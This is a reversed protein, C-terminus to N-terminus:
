KLLGPTPGTTIEGLTDTNMGIANLGAIKVKALHTGQANIHQGLNIRDGMGAVISFMSGIRKGHASIGQGYFFNTFTNDLVTGGAEPRDLLNQVVQRYINASWDANRVRQATTGKHGDQHFDTGGGISRLMPHPYTILMTAVRTLDAAIAYAILEAHIQGRLTENAWGGYSHSSVAPMVGPRQPAPISGPTIASNGGTPNNQLDVINKELERVKELHGEIIAKDESNVSAMLRRADELIADLASKKKAIYTSPTPNTQTPNAPAQGGSMLTDYVKQPSVEPLVLSIRGANEIASISEGTFTTTNYMSATVRVHLSSMLSGRGLFKAAIQDCSEGRLKPATRDRASVGTYAPSITGYHNINVASGPESGVEGRQHTPFGTNSIISIHDRISELSRISAGLSGPQMQGYARPWTGSTAGAPGGHTHNGCFVNVFRKPINISQAHATLPIMADLLPISIVVGSGRLFTRRSLLKKSM